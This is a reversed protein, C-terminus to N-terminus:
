RNICRVLMLAKAPVIDAYYHAHVGKWSRHTRVQLGMMFLSAKAPVIDADKAILGRKAAACLM